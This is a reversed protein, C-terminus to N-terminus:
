PLPRALALVNGDPDALYAVEDGWPRPALESLLRAGAARAGEVAEALDQCHLYIETGTIGDPAPAQPLVGTNRAFAERQYVGLRQGGPLTFEVYVPAEVSVQWEPFARRYFRSARDLDGVALITLIHLGM